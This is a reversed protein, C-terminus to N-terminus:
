LLFKQSSFTKSQPNCVQPSRAEVIKFAKTFDNQKKKKWNQNQNQNQNIIKFFNEIKM